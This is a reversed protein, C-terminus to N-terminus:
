SGTAPTGAPGSGRGLWCRASGIRQLSPIMAMPALDLGEGQLTANPLEGFLILGVVLGDVEAVVSLRAYSEDRLADALGAEEDGGFYLRNLERVADYDATVEPRVVPSM